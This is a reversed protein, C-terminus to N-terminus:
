QQGTQQQCEPLYSLLVNEKAKPQDFHNAHINRGTRDRGLACLGAGPSTGVPRPFAIVDACLRRQAVPGSQARGGNDDMRARELVAVSRGLIGNQMTQETRDAFEDSVNALFHFNVSIAM